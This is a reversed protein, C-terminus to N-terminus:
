TAGINSCAGSSTFTVANGSAGGTAAVTFSSNYAASGPASTTFTIAQSAPSLSVINAPTSTVSNYNGNGARTATVTCSTAGSNATLQNLLAGTIACPGGTVTYTVAGNTSGGTVSLPESQNYTL